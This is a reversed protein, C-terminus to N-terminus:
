KRRFIGLLGAALFVLATPEPTPIEKLIFSDPINNTGMNPDTVIVIDGYAYGPQFVDGPSASPVTGTDFNLEVPRGGYGEDGSFYVHQFQGGSPLITSDFGVIDPSLYMHFDKWDETTDNIVYEDNIIFKTYPTSLNTKKFQIIIPDFGNEPKYGLFWKDLELVMSNASSRLKLVHIGVQNKIGEDIIASWGTETSGYKLPIEIYSAFSKGVALFTLVVLAFIVWKSERMAM